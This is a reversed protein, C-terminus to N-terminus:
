TSIHMDAYGHMIVEKSNMYNEFSGLYDWKAKSMQCNRRVKREVIGYVANLLSRGIFEFLFKRFSGLHEVNYKIPHNLLICGQRVKRFGRKGAALIMLSASSAEALAYTRIRSKSAMMCEILHYAETANGGISDIVLHIDDNGQKNLRAIESRIFGANDPNIEGRLYLTREENLLHIMNRKGIVQMSNWSM